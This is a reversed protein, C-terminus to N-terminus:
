KVKFSMGFARKGHFQKMSNPCGRVTLKGKTGVHVNWYEHAVARLLNTDALKTYEVQFSVSVFYGVQTTEWNTIQAGYEEVDHKSIHREVTARLWQLAREQSKTFPVNAVAAKHAAFDTLAQTLQETM